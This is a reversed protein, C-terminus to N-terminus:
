SHTAIIVVFVTVLAIVVAVAAVTTVRMLIYDQRLMRQRDRKAMRNRPPRYGPPPDHLYLGRRRPSRGRPGGLYVM